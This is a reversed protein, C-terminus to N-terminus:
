APPTTETVTKTSKMRIDFVMLMAPLLFLDALLASMIAISSFMGFFVFGMNISMMFMLFGSSLILSTFVIAQGAEQFAMRCAKKVDGHKQVELRFHTLFHISDDVAIGITIPAVLLVHIDLPVGWFGLLGFIVIMPFVNPVIAILGLKRSGMIILLILSIVSLTIGFSKVQSWSVYDSLRNMLPIQGTVSVELDPYVSKLPTFVRDIEKQVRDMFVLGEKSGFNVTNVSIRATRYDDTVLQRRDKPNANNFLFLTQALVRPEQPIRYMTPDGEHLAKYSDKTVNVLSFTKVVTEPHNKELIEQLAEVANMVRPDKVGDSRGTDVLITMSGTGGMKEDVLSYATRIPASDRISEVLNTDVQVKSAGFGMIVAIALFLVVIQKPYRYNLFELKQILIQLIHRRTSSEQLSKARKKSVSRWLDLMLPLMFVTLAFATMVGLAAFLGFNSIPVIPVFILATLGVSTTFSTLFCALGSKKFVSRLAEEHDQGQYRFFLYGSLIHVTDAVGVALILFVTIETVSSLPIGLWGSVGLIWVLSVTIILLPWVVASLSRFLLWLVLSILLLMGGFMLGAEESMAKFSVDMLVPNGIPHFALVDAYKPQLLVAYIEKMFAAYESMNTKRFTPSLDTGGDGNPSFDEEFDSDDLSIDDDEDLGGGSKGESKSFTEEQLANFDTKIMIGGLRGDESFYLLPYDPQEVAQRYITDRESRNQPIDNGIFDRTILATEKTEMYSANVITEVETIHELHSSQGQEFRSRYDLLEEQIGKVAELSQTSFVDGDKPEYVIYVVEDSGFMARFRNYARKIPEEDSLYSETSMEVQLRGLGMALVLTLGLFLLWVWLRYRRVLDPSREFFRNLRNIVSSM